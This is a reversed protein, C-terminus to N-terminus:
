RIRAGGFDALSRKSETLPWFGSRFGVAGAVLIIYYAVTWGIWLDGNAIQVSKGKRQDDQKGRGRAIDLPPGIPEGAEVRGWVRPLGFWNCFSHALIM